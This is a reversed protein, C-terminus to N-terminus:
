LTWYKKPSFHENNEADPKVAVSSELDINLHALLASHIIKNAGNKSRPPWISCVDERRGGTLLYAARAFECSAPRRALNGLPPQCTIQLNHKLM